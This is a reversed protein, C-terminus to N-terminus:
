DVVITIGYTWQAEVGSQWPQSYKMNIATTGKGVAEFTWAEKGPVGTLGPSPEEFDYDEAKLVNDETMDYDWQFGTSINSCLKVRIKDGVDINFNDHLGNPNDAFEGCSIDVSYDHSTTICAGFSLIQLILIVLLAIAVTRLKM